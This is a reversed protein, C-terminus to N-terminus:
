TDLYKIDPFQLQLKYYQQCYIITSKIFINTESNCIINDKGRKSWCVLLFPFCDSMDSNRAWSSTNPKFIISTVASPFQKKLNTRFCVFKTQTIYILLHNTKTSVRINLQQEIPFGFCKMFHSFHACRSQKKFNQLIFTRGNVSCHLTNDCLKPLDTPLRRPYGHSTGSFPPANYWPIM